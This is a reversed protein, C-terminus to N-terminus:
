GLKCGCSREFDKHFFLNTIDHQYYLNNKIFIIFWKLFFWFSSVFIIKIKFFYFLIFSWFLLHYSVNAWDGIVPALHITMSHCASWIVKRAKSCYFNITTSYNYAHTSQWTFTDGHSNAFKVHMDEESKRQWIEENHAVSM